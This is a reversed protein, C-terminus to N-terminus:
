LRVAGIARLTEDYYLYTNGPSGTGIIAAAATGYDLYSPLSYNGIIFSGSIANAQGAEYGLIISNVGQNSTGASNGIIICRTSSNTNGADPGIMINNVGTNGAGADNGIFINSDGTNYAGAGTGIAIVNTGTSDLGASTGQFNNGDVLDHNNDLVEQLTSAGAPPLFPTLAEAFTDLSRNLYQYVFKFRPIISM